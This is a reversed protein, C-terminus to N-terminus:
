SSAHSARPTVGSSHTNRSSRPTLRLGARASPICVMLTVSGSAASVSSPSIRPSESHRQPRLCALRAEESRTGVWTLPRPWVLLPAGAAVALLQGQHARAPPRLWRDAARRAPLDGLRGQGRGGHRGPDGPGLHRVGVVPGPGTRGAGAHRVAGDAPLLRAVKVFLSASGSSAATLAIVYGVIMPLSLPLALTQVQDQREAMSGAAAYVWCYFTYGLLLWVLAAALALPNPATCCTRDSRRQGPDPRLRPRDGGSGDRGSRHGVGEGVLLQIPRMTALLVEVVRSAKEQMVGM